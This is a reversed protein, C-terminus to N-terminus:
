IHPPYKARCGGPNRGEFIGTKMQFIAGFFRVKANAKPFGHRKMDKEMSKSRTVNM